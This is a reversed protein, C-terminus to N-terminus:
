RLRNNGEFFFKFLVLEFTFLNEIMHHLTSQESSLNLRNNHIEIYALRVVVFVTGSRHVCKGMGMEQSM